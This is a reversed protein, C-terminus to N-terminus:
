ERVRASSHISATPEELLLCRSPTGMPLMQHHSRFVTKLFCSESRFRVLPMSQAEHAITRAKTAQLSGATIMSTLLKAALGACRRFTRETPFHASHVAISRVCSPVLIPVRVVAFWDRSRRGVLFGVIAKTARPSKATKQRIRSVTQDCSDMLKPNLSGCRPLIGFM